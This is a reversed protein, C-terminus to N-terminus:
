KILQELRALRQELSANKAKLEDIEADKEAKLEHIAAVIMPTLKAYSVSWTDKSEDEPVGVVEPLIKYLDQAIFGLDRGGDQLGGIVLNGNDDKSSHLWDYYVPEMQLVKDLGGSVGERNVKLRGDSHYKYDYARVWGANGNVSELDIRHTPSETGFGVYGDKNMTMHTKNSTGFKLRANLFNVISIDYDTGSTTSGMHWTKTTNNYGEIWANGKNGSTSQIRIVESGDSGSVHFQTSPNTTGIGVNGGTEITMHAGGTKYGFGLGTTTAEINGYYSDDVANRIVMGWSSNKPKIEVYRNDKAEFVTAKVTGAVHLETAPTETGIGVKGDSAIYLDVEDETGFRMDGGTQQNFLAINGGGTSHSGLYWLDRDANKTKLIAGADESGGTATNELTINANPGKIHLADAPLTTGIGVHAGLISVADIASDTFQIRGAPADGLGLWHGDANVNAFVAGEEIVSTTMSGVKTIDGSGLSTWGNVPSFFELTDSDEDYGLYGGDVGAGTPPGSSNGIQPLRLGQPSGDGHTIGSLDIFDAKMTGDVNLLATLDVAGIGVNGLEDITMRTDGASGTGFFLNGGTSKNLLLLDNGANANGLYWVQGSTNWGDIFASATASATSQIKIGETAGSGKLHLISDPNTIGIGLDGENTLSMKEQTGGFTFAISNTLASVRTNTLDDDTDKIEHVTVVGTADNVSIVDTNSGVKDWSPDNYIMWDGVAYTDGGVDGAVQIIYADGTTPGVPYSPNAVADYVGKFNLAGATPSWIANGAGDSTLVYGNSGSAGTTMQFELTTVKNAVDLNTGIDVSGSVTADVGVTLNNAIAVDTDNNTLVNSEVWANAADSWRLTYDETGANTSAKTVWEPADDGPNVSLLQGPDGLPLKTWKSAAYDYFIIDGDGPVGVDTDALDSINMSVGGSDFPIWTPSDEDRYELKGDTPDVRIGPPNTGSLDVGMWYLYSSDLETRMRLYDDLDNTPKFDISGNVPHDQNNAIVAGGLEGKFITLTFDGEDTLIVSPSDGADDDLTLNKNSTAAFGAQAFVLLFAAVFVVTKNLFNMGNM